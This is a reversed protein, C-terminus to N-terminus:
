AHGIGPWLGVHLVELEPSVPLDPCKKSRSGFNQVYSTLVQAKAEKNALLSTTPMESRGKKSRSVEAQYRTM